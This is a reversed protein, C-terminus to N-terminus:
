GRYTSFYDKRSHMFGAEQGLASRANLHSNRMAQVSRARMTMANNTFFAATDGATDISRRMKRRRYGTKMVQYAGYGVVSAGVIAAGITATRKWSGFAAAGAAGGLFAGPVGLYEQGIQAGIGAAVGTRLMGGIGFRATTVQVRGSTDTPKAKGLLGAKKADGYSMDRTKYMARSLASSTALDWVAADMAGKMGDEQYGMYMFGLSMAPGLMSLGTSMLSKEGIQGLSRMSQDALRETYRFGPVNGYRQGIGQSFLSNGFAMTRHSPRPGKYHMVAGTPVNGYRGGVGAMERLKGMGWGYDRVAQPTLGATFHAGHSVYSPAAANTAWMGGATFLMDLM